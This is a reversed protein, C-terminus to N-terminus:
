TIDDGSNLNLLKNNLEKLTEIDSKNQHAKM